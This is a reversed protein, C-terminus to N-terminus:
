SWLPRGRSSRSISPHHTDPNHRSPNQNVIAFPDIERGGLGYDLPIPPPAKMVMAWPGHGCRKMLGQRENEKTESESTKERIKAHGLRRQSSSCVTDDQYTPNDRTKMQKPKLIEIQTKTEGRRLSDRANDTKDLILMLGRKMRSGELVWGLGTWPVAGM